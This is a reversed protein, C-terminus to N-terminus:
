GAETDEDRGLTVRLHGRLDERLNGMKRAIEEVVRVRGDEHTLVTDSADDRPIGVKMAEWEELRDIRDGSNFGPVGPEPVILKLVSAWAADIQTRNGTLLAALIVVTQNTQSSTQISLAAAAAGTASGTFTEIVLPTPTTRDLIVLQVPNAGYPFVYATCNSIEATCNNGLVIAYGGGPQLAM